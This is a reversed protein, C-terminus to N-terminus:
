CCCPCAEAAGVLLRAAGLGEAVGTDWGLMAPVARLACCPLYSANPVFPTNTTSPCFVFYSAKSSTRHKRSTYRSM